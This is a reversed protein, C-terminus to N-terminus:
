VQLTNNLKMEIERYLGRGDAANEHLTDHNSLLHLMDVQFSLLIDGDGKSSFVTCGGCCHVCLLM